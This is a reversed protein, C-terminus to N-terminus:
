RVQASVLESILVICKGISAQRPFKTSEIFGILVVNAVPTQADKM